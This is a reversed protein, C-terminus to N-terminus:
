LDKELSHQADLLVAKIDGNKLHAEVLASEHARARQSLGNEGFSGATGALQHLMARVSTIQDDKLVPTALAHQIQALTKRKRQAFQEQFVAWGAPVQTNRQTRSGGSWANIAADLDALRVPKQLFAQMGAERYSRVEDLDTAATVAIIPLSAADFGEARLRRTTEIGDLVPMMVDLLLLTYPREARCAHRIMAIAEAGNAAVDMDIGLHEAMAAMMDASIPTDEALLIRQVAPTEAGVAANQGQAQLGEAPKPVEGQFM